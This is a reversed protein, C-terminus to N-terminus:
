EESATQQTPRNKKKNRARVKLIIWIIIGAIIALIVFLLWIPCKIIMKSVQTTVGGFEVTYVANFIGIGPTQEWSTEHYLERDPLILHTEPKEENTYIEENSFLPYVQLTYKADGHVNGTNKITSSGTINGSLLFSPLNIDTVDGQRIIDGTVEAYITYAIKKEEKVSSGVDRSNNSSSNTSEVAEEDSWAEASILLSAYQGGGAANRPVKITYEVTTKENPALRGETPSDITIWKVIENNTGYVNQYDNQYNEDVFYPAVEVKYKMDNEYDAPIHIDVSSTYEEGPNLVIKESMPSVTFAVGTVAFTQLVFALPLMMIALLLTGITAWKKGNIKIVRM